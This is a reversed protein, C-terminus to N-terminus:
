NIVTKHIKTKYEENKNRVVPCDDIRSFRRWRFKDIHEVESLSHTVILCSSDLINVEPCADYLMLYYKDTDWINDVLFWGDRGPYYFTASGVEVSDRDYYYLETMVNNRDKRIITRGEFTYETIELQHSYKYLETRPDCASLYIFTLSIAFLLSNRKM